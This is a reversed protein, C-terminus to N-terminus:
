RAAVGEWPEEWAGRVQEGKQPALHPHRRLAPVAELLSPGEGPFHELPARPEGRSLASPLGRCESLALIHHSEDCVM